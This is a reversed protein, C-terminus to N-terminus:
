YNKYFKLFFDQLYVDIKRLYSKSIGINIPKNQHLQLFLKVNEEFYSIICM